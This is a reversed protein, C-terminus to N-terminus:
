LIEIREYEINNIRHFFRIMFPVIAKEEIDIEYDYLDDSQFSITASYTIHLINCIDEVINGAESVINHIIMQM